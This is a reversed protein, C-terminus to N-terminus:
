GPKSVWCVGILFLITIRLKVLNVSVIWSSIHKWPILCSSLMIYESLLLFKINVLVFVSPCFIPLYFKLLLFSDFWSLNNHLSLFSISLPLKEFCVCEHVCVFWIFVLFSQLGEARKNNWCKSIGPLKKSLGVNLWELETAILNMTSKASSLVPIIIKRVM